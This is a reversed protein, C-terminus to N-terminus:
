PIALTNLHTPIHTYLFLLSHTFKHTCHTCTLTDILSHTLSHSLSLSLPLTHTHMQRVRKNKQKANRKKNRPTPKRLPIDYTGLRRKGSWKTKTEEPSGRSEPSGASSDHDDPHLLTTVPSLVLPSELAGFGFLSDRRQIDSPVLDGPTSHGMTPQPIKFDPSAFPHKQEEARIVSVRKSRPHRFKRTISTASNDTAVAVKARTSKRKRVTIKAQPSSVDKHSEKTMSNDIRNEKGDKEVSDVEGGIAEEEDNVVPESMVISDSKVIDLSQSSIEFSKRQVCTSVPRLLFQLVNLCLM